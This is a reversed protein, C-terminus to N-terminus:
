KNVLFQLDQIVLDLDENFLSFVYASILTPEFNSRSIILIMICGSKKEDCHYRYLCYLLIVCPYCYLLVIIFVICYM